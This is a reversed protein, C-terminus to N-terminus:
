AWNNSKKEEAERSQGYVMKEVGLAEYIMRINMDRKDGAWIAGRVELSKDEQTDHLYRSSFVDVVSIKFKRGM